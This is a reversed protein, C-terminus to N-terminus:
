DIVYVVDLVSASVGGVLTLLAVVQVIVGVLAAALMLWTPTLSMQNPWGPMRFGDPQSLVDYRTTYWIISAQALVGLIAAGLALTTIRVMIRVFNPKALAQRKARRIQEYTPGINFSVAPGDHHHGHHSHHRYPEMATPYLFQDVGLFSSNKVRIQTSTGM